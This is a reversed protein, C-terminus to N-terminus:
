RTSSRVFSGCFIKRYGDQIYKENKALYALVKKRPIDSFEDNLVRRCVESKFFDYSILRNDESVGTHIKTKNRLIELQLRQKEFDSATRKIGPDEM